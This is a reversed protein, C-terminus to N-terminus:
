AQSLPVASLSPWHASTRGLARLCPLERQDHTSLQVVCYQVSLHTLAALLGPFATVRQRQGSPPSNIILRPNAGPHRDPSHTHPFAAACTVATSDQSTGPGCARTIAAPIVSLVILVILCNTGAAAHLEASKSEVRDNLTYNTAKCIVGDQEYVVRGERWVRRPPFRWKFGNKGKDGWRYQRKSAAEAKRAAEREQEEQAAAQKKARRRQQAAERVGSKVTRIRIKRSVNTGRIPAESARDEAIVQSPGPSSSASTVSAVAPAMGSDLLQRSPQMKALDRGTQLHQSAAASCPTVMAVPVLLAAAVSLM